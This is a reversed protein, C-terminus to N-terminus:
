GKRIIHAITKMFQRISETGEFMVEGNKNFLKLTKKLGPAVGADGRVKEKILEFKDLNLRRLPSNEPLTVVKKSAYPKQGNVRQLSYREVRTGSDYDLPKGLPTERVDSHKIGYLVNYSQSSTAVDNFFAMIKEGKREINEVCESSFKLLFLIAVTRRLAYCLM